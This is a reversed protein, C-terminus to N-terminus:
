VFLEFLRDWWLMALFFAALAWHFVHDFPGHLKNEQLNKIYIISFALLLLVTLVMLSLTLRDIYIFM